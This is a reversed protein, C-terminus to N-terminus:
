EQTLDSITHRREIENEWIESESDWILSPASINWKNKGSCHQISNSIAYGRETVCLWAPWKYRQAMQAPKYAMQQIANHRHFNVHLMMSTHTNPQLENFPQLQTLGWLEHTFVWFWTASDTATKQSRHPPQQSSGGNKEVRLVVLNNM